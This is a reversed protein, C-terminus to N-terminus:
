VLKKNWPVNGKPAGKIGNPFHKRYEEGKLGKNWVVRNNLKIDHKKHCSACLHLWTERARTYRHTKSAWQVNRTSGCFECCSPVGYNRRLWTHLAHFGVKDGKWLPHNEGSEQPYHNGSRPNPVHKARCVLSCYRTGTEWIKQSVNSKKYFLKRCYLCRKYQMIVLTDNKSLLVLPQLRGNSSM